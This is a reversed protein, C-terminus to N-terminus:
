EKGNPVFLPQGFSEVGFQGIKEQIEESLIWDVFAQAEDVHVRPNKEPDVVIIGYLNILDLSNEVVVKLDLRDKMSLYTGRDSLTYAKKENAMQLVEGMGKGASFYWDGLPEVDVKSWFILEKKHTGSDDGRSFFPKQNDNIYQFAGLIDSKYEEPLDDIGVLVFDNYMVDHRKLGFGAEVFAEESAKSHVLLVDAEGNEGMELARGTGVAVIKVEIGTKEIFDPVIANLLGTQDTSTTTALIISKQSQDQNSCAYILTTISLIMLCTGIKKIIKLM